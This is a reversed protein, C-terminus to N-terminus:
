DSSGGGQSPTGSATFTISVVNGKVGDIYGVTYFTYTEGITLSLVRNAAAVSEGGPITYVEEYNTNSVNSDQSVYFIGERTDLNRLRLFGFSYNFDPDILPETGFLDDIDSTSVITCGKVILGDVKISVRNALETTIVGTRTQLDDIYEAHTALTTQNEELSNKNTTTGLYLDQLTLDYGDRLSIIETDTYAKNESEFSAVESQRNAILTNLTSTLESEKNGARTIETEINNKNTSVQENRTANLDYLGHAKIISDDYLTQIQEKSLLTITETAM